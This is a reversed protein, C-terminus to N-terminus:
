MEAQASARHTAALPQEYSLLCVLVPGVGADARSASRPVQCDTDLLTTGDGDLQVSKLHVGVCCVGVDAMPDNLAVQAPLRFTAPVADPVSL